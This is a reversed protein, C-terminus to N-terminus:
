ALRTHPTAPPAGTQQMADATDSSVVAGYLYTEQWVRKKTPGEVSESIKLIHPLPEDMDQLMQLLSQESANEAEATIIPLTCGTQKIADIAIAHTSASGVTIHTTTM